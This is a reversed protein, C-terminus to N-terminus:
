RRAPPRFALVTARPRPLRARGDHELGTGLGRLSELLGREGLVSDWMLRSMEMCASLPTGARQRVRDVRWQLCRLRQRRAEPAQDIARDLVRTREREFAQPDDRALKSWQDFDFRITAQQTM